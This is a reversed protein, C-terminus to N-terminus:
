GARASASTASTTPRMFGVMTASLTSGTLLLSAGAVLLGILTLTLSFIGCIALVGLVIIALGAM